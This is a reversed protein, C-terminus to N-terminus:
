HGQVNHWHTRWKPIWIRCDFEIIGVGIGAPISKGPRPPLLGPPKHDPESGRLSIRLHNDVLRVHKVIVARIEHSLFLKQRRVYMKTVIM